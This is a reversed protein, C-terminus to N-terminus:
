TAWQWGGHTGVIQAGVHLQGLFAVSDGYADALQTYGTRGRYWGDSLVAEWTNVGERVLGTVDYTQVHLNAWYSTFGPTLELDGVRVGNLFGEYIGHATAYIRAPGTAD